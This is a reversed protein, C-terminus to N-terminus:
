DKLTVAWRVTVKAAMPVGGVLSGYLGTLVKEGQAVRRGGTAADTRGRFVEIEDPAGQQYKEPLFQGRDSHASAPALPSTKFSAHDKRTEERAPRSSSKRRRSARAIAQSAQERDPGSPPRVSM